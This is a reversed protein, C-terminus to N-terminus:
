KIQASPFPGVVSFSFLFDEINISIKLEESREIFFNSSVWRNKNHNRVFLRKSAINWHNLSQSCRCNEINIDIRNMYVYHMSEIPPLWNMNLEPPVVLSTLTNGNKTRLANWCHFLEDWNCVTKTCSIRLIYANELINHLWPMKYLMCKGLLRLQMNVLFLTKLLNNYDM